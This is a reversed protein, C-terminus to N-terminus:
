YSLRELREAVFLLWHLELGVTSCGCAKDLFAHLGLTSFGHIHSEVPELVELLLFLEINKPARAFEVHTVIICFMVWRRM